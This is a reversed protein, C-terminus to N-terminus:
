RCVKCQWGTTETKGTDTNVKTQRSFVTKVDATRDDKSIKNAKLFYTLMFFIDVFSPRVARDEDGLAKTHAYAMEVDEDEAMEDDGEKDVEDPYDEDTAKRSLRSPVPADEDSDIVISWVSQHSKKVSVENDSDIDTDVTSCKKSSSATDRVKASPKPARTSRRSGATIAAPKNGKALLVSFANSKPPIVQSASSSAPLTSSPGSLAIPDDDDPNNYWPIDAADKLKGDSGITCNSESM